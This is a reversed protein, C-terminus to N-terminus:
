LLWDVSLVVNFSYKLLCFKLFAKGLFPRLNKIKISTIAIIEVNLNNGLFARFIVM